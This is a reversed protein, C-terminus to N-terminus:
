FESQQKAGCVSVSWLASAFLIATEFVGVRSGHEFAHIARQWLAVSLHGHPSPRLISRSTVATFGAVIM